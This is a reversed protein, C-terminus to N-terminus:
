SKSPNLNSQICIESLLAFKDRREAEVNSHLVYPIAPPDNIGRAKLQLHIKKASRAKNLVSRPLGCKETLRGFVKQMSKVHNNM